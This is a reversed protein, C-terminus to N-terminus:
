RSLAPLLYCRSASQRIGDSVNADMWGVGEQTAGNYDPNYKHGAQVAARIFASSMPCKSYQRNTVRGSTVKIPGESGRYNSLFKICQDEAVADISDNQDFGPTYNEFKKFYALCNKYSWLETCVEQKAWREFDQSQGRVFAMYNIASSGGWGTDRPCNIRRGNLKNEPESLYRLWLDRQNEFSTIDVDVQWKSLGAAIM